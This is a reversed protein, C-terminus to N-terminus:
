CRADGVAPHRGSGAEPLHVVEHLRQLHPPRDRRGDPQRRLDDRARRAALRRRAAQPVRLHAGRAPLRRADRRVAVEQVARRGAAAEERAARARVLGQGARPVLHLLAGPRARRRSRHRSRDARLRRAPAARPRADLKWASVGHRTEAEVPVLRMYDLKRPARFLVGGRHATRGPRRTRRGRRTACRSTSSGGAHAAEDAQWARSRKRSASSRSRRAWRASGACRAARSRRVDAAADAKYANMAKRQVFQRKVAFLPALEHHRAELARVEADIGFLQALFDELAARRAILLESEAKRELADPAARAAALRTPWRPMPPACIRRRLARRHARAGTSRTCTPSRSVTRSRCSHLCRCNSTAALAHLATLKVRKAAGVASAAPM